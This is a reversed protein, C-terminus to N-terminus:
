GSIGRAIASYRSVSRLLAKVQLDAPDLGQMEAVRQWLVLDLRTRIRLLELTKGNLEDELRCTFQPPLPPMRNAHLVPFPKGLWNGLNEEWHENEVIDVWSFTELADLAARLLRDDDKPDIFKDIEVGVPELLMRVSVNDTSTILDPDNLFDYLPWRSHHLLERWDGWFNEEPWPWARWFLWQSILRSIPERLVTILQGNPYRARLTSLTIHGGVLDANAPLSEPTLHIGIRQKEPITDFRNFPGFIHRGLGHSAIKPQLVQHLGFTLSTGATKPVHMLALTRTSDYKAHASQPLTSDGVM